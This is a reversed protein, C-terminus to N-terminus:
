ILLVFFKSELFEVLPCLIQKALARAHEHSNGHVVRIDDDSVLKKATQCVQIILDPKDSFEALLIRFREQINLAILDARNKEHKTICNKM